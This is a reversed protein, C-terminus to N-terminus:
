PSKPQAKPARVPVTNQPSREGPASPLVKLATTFGTPAKLKDALYQAENSFASDFYIATQQDLKFQGEALKMELPLPIIAPLNQGSAAAGVAPFSLFATLIIFLPLRSLKM